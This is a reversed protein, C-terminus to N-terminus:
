YNIGLAHFETALITSIKEAGTNTFHMGDYYYKSNKPLLNALDILPINEKNAIKRTISNYSELVKWYTSGNKFRTKITGLNVETTPDIEDGFLLPQTILVPQIAQEKTTQMLKILRLEYQELYPLQRDIIAQTEVRDINLHAEEKLNLTGHGLDIQYAFLSRRLGNILIAIESNKKLWDIFSFSQNKLLTIDDNHLDGRELENVGVLYFIYKPKMDKLYSELLIQHGFTSHGDLGANNIWVPQESKFQLKKELLNTWDLGDSLFRCETTSGGVAIISLYDEFNLPIEEGRFGISNKTHTIQKDLSPIHLNDFTFVRKAPLIIKENKVSIPLPNFFQLFLELVLLSILSGIGLTILSFLINKKM